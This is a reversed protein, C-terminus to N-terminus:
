NNHLSPSVTLWLQIRTTNKYLLMARLIAPSGASVHEQFNQSCFVDYISFHMQHNNIRVNKVNSKDTTKFYLYGLDAIKCENIPANASIRFVVILTKMDTRGDKQGCPVFRSGSFLNEHFKTNSYKEFFSDIFNM